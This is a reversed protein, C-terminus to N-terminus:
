LAIERDFPPLVVADVDAEFLVRIGQSAFFQVFQDKTAGAGNYARILLHNSKNRHIQRLVAPYDAGISPKIEIKFTYFERTKPLEVYTRGESSFRRTPLRWESAEFGLGLRYYVDIADVEFAPQSCILLKNTAHGGDDLRNYLATIKIEPLDLKERVPESPMQHSYRGCKGGSQCDPCQARESQCRELRERYEQIRQEHQPRTHVEFDSLIRDKIAEVDRRWNSIANNTARAFIGTGHAAAAFKLRYEEDLFKIQMANHEPTESPEQGNNIVIQYINGYQQQFWSQSLLWDLYERDDLLAEVPKGKHKGFPVIDSM